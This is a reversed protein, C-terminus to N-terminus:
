PLGRIVHRSESHVSGQNLKAVFSDALYGELFADLSSAIEVDDIGPGRPSLVVFTRPPLQRASKTIAVVDIFPPPGNQEWTFLGSIECGCTMLAGYRSLFGRYERPFSLGLEREAAGILADPAPGAICTAVGDANSVLLELTGM